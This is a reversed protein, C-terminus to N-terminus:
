QYDVLEAEEHSWNTEIYKRLDEEQGILEVTGFGHGKGVTAVRVFVAEPKLEDILAAPETSEIEVRVPGPSIATIWWENPEFLSRDLGVMVVKSLEVATPAPIGGGVEVELELLYKM